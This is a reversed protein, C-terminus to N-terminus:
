VTALRRDDDADNDRRDFMRMQKRMISREDRERERERGYDVLLLRKGM